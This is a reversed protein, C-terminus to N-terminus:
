IMLIQNQNLFWGVQLEKIFLMPQRGHTMAWCIWWRLMPIVAAVPVMSCQSWSGRWLAPAALTSAPNPMGNKFGWMLFFCGKLKVIFCHCNFLLLKLLWYLRSWSKCELWAHKLALNPLKRLREWTAGPPLNIPSDKPLVWLVWLVNYVFVCFFFVCVVILLHFFLGDNHVWWGM